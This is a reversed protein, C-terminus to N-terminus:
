LGYLNKIGENIFVQIFLAKDPSFLPYDNERDYIWQAMSHISVLLENWVDKIIPYASKKHGSEFLPHVEGSGSTQTQIREMYKCWVFSAAHKATQEVLMDWKNPETPLEETESDTTDESDEEKVIPITRGELMQKYLVQGITAQYFIPEYKDVYWQLESNLAFESATHTGAQAIAIEGEFYSPNLIM